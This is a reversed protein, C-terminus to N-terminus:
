LKAVTAGRGEERAQGVRAVSAGSGLVRMYGGLGNKITSYHQGDQLGKFIPSEDIEDWSKQFVCDDGFFRLALTEREPFSADVPAGGHVCGTHMVLVNGKKLDFSVLDWKHREQAIPPIKPLNRSLEGGSDYLPTTDDEGNRFTRFRRFADFKKAANYLPGLHSGRVV